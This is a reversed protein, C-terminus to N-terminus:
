QRPSEYPYLIQSSLPCGNLTSNLALVYRLETLVNVETTIHGHYGAM